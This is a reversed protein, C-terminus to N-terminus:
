FVGDATGSMKRKEHDDTTSEEKYREYLDQSWSLLTDCVQEQQEMIAKGTLPIDMHEKLVAQYYQKAREIGSIINQILELSTTHDVTNLNCIVANFDMLIKPTQQSCELMMDKLYGAGKETISYINKSAFYEGQIESSKVYGQEQLRLVKKYVSPISIKTWESLNHEEIYKQIDYASRPAKAIAGLVILDITSSM